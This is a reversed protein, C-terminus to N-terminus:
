GGKNPSVASGIPQTYPAPYKLVPSGGAPFAWRAATLVIADGAVLGPGKITAQVPDCINSQQTCTLVTSGTVMGTDSVWYFTPGSFTDQDGVVMSKIKGSWAVTGPFLISGGTIPM